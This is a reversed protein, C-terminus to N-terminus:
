ADKVIAVAEALAPIAEAPDDDICLEISTFGMAHFALLTEAIEESSGVIPSSDAWMPGIERGPAAVGVGMSRGLTSPDRGQEECTRDVLDIMDQFAEPQSSSTAYGSWIDGYKVALGITRPGHGALMLPMESGQPGRPRNPQRDASHYPGDHNAHGDRLLPVVIELADEYRGVARDPPYGFM